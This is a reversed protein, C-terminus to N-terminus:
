RITSANYKQIMYDYIVSSVFMRCYSLNYIKPPFYVSGEIKIPKQSKNIFRYYAKAISDISYGKKYRELIDNNSM